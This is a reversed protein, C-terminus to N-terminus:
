RDVLSLTKLSTEPCLVNTRVEVQVLSLIEIYPYHVESLRSFPGVTVIRLVTRDDATEITHLVELTAGGRGTLIEGHPFRPFGMQPAPRQKRM